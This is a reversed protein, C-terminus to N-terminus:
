GARCYLEGRGGDLADGRYCLWEQRAPPLGLLPFFGPVINCSLSYGLPMVPAPGTAILTGRKMGAGAQRGWEGDVILTGAIMSSGAFHGVRGRIHLRGRRMRTAVEHGADGFIDIQGGTLGCRSGVFSGGACNGAQGHVTIAGGRMECGLWDGADGHITLTGGTMQVGARRGVPGDVCVTGGCLGAALGHVSRCDGTFQLDATANLRTIDFFEGLPVRRNGHLVLYAALETVCFNAVVQPTLDFLEIPLRSTIISQLRFM